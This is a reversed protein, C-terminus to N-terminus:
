YTAVFVGTTAVGSSQAAMMQMLYVQALADQPRHFAVRGLQPTEIEQPGAAQTLIQAILANYDISSGNAMNHVRTTTRAKIVSSAWATTSNAFYRPGTSTRAAKSVWAPSCERGRTVRCIRIKWFRRM